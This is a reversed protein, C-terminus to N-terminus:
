PETLKGTAADMLWLDGDLYVQFAEEGFALLGDPSWTVDEMRIGADLRSLGACSREALTVTDFVCLKGDRRSGVMPRVGVISSGEPSMSLIRVDPIQITRMSVLRVPEGPSGAQASAAACLLMPAVISLLLLRRHLTAPQRHTDM